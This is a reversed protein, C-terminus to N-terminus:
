AQLDGSFQRRTRLNTLILEIVGRRPRGREYLKVPPIRIGEAWIEEALPNYGGAVPGGTESMHSRNATLFVLEGKYFVPKFMTMDPMHSGGSPPDNHYLVDGPALDSGFYDTVHRCAMIM